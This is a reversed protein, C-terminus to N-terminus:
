LLISIITGFSKSDTSSKDTIDIVIEKHYLKNILTVQEQMAIMGVGSEPVPKDIQSQKIGIGNDEIIILTKEDQKKVAIKIKGPYDIGKFAHKVCNEAFGQIIMKPIDTKKSNINESINIEFDFMDNFRSKQFELYDETFQLEDNLPRFIKDSFALSSRMLRSFREFLNYATDRDEKYIKSAVVNLANFTFHPDLQNQTNKLQLGIIRNKLETQKQFKKKQQFQILRVFAFSVIFVVFWFLYKWNYAPNKYYTCYYIYKKSTFIISYKDNKKKSSISYLGNTKKDVPIKVRNKLNNRYLYFNNDTKDQFVFEPKSDSDIDVSQEFFYLSELQKSYPSDFIIRSVPNFESYSAKEFINKYFFYHDKNDILLLRANSSYKEELNIKETIEGKESIFLVNNYDKTKNIVFFENDSKHVRSTTAYEICISVPKFLFNLDKDYGFIRACTDPYKYPFDNTCNNTANTSSFFILERKVTYYHTVKQRSGTNESSILSDNNLDYRFIKRPFLSFRGNVSFYLEKHKDNNIDEACIWEYEYDQKKNIGIKTIFRDKVLAEFGKYSFINLFLSDKYQSFFIIDDSADNNVDAFYASPYLCNETMYYKSNYQYINNGYKDYIMLALPDDGFNFLRFLESNGDKDTDYFIDIRNPNSIKQDLEIKYKKFNIPNILIITLTPVLALLLASIINRSLIKKFKNIFKSQKM